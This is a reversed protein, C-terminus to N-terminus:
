LKKNAYFLTNFIMKLLIYTKDVFPVLHNVVGKVIVSKL